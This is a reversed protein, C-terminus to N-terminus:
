PNAPKPSPTRRKLVMNIGTALLLNAIASVFYVWVAIRGPAAVMDANEVLLLVFFCTMGLALTYKISKPQRATQQGLVIAALLFQTFPSSALGGTFAALYTISAATLVATAVLLKGARAPNPPRKNAQPPIFSSDDVDRLAALLYHWTTKLFTRIDGLGMAAAIGCLILVVLEVAIFVSLVEPQPHRFSWLYCPATFLLLLLTGGSHALL